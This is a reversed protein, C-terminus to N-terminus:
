RANAAGKQAAGARSGSSRGALMPRGTAQPAETTASPPEEFRGTPEEGSQLAQQGQQVALDAEIVSDLDPLNYADGVLKLVRGVDTYPAIMPAAQAVMMTANMAEAARRRLVAESTREISYREVDLRFDDWREGERMGGRIRVELQGAMEPPAGVDEPKVSIALSRTHMIYWLVGRLLMEDCDSFRQSLYAIRTGAAESAVAVETATGVGSVAGRQSDDLGSVRNLRERLELIAMRQENTAGGLETQVYSQPTFGQLLVVDGDQAEKLIQADREGRLADAIGIRKRSATANSLAAAHRNLELVQEYVAECPGMGLTSNPLNYADFIYIPGWPPGFFPRPDRVFETHGAALTFITGNAWPPAKPDIVDPCWVELLDVEGRRPGNRNDRNSARGEDGEHDTPLAEIATRRWTKDTEALARLDHRSRSYCYGALQRTEWSSARTDWYADQPDIRFAAPLTQYDDQEAEGQIRELRLGAVGWGVLYDTCLRQLLVRHRTDKVWQNVAATGAAASERALGGKATSVVVRPDNSVIRPLTYALYEYYHNEALREVEGNRGLMLGGSMGEVIRQVRLGRKRLEQRAFRIEEMLHGADYKM